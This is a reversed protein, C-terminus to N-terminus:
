GPYPLGSPWWSPVGSAVNDHNLPCTNIMAFKVHHEGTPWSDYWMVDLYAPTTYLTYVYHWGKIQHTTVHHQKYVANAITRAKTSTMASGNMTLCIGPGDAAKAYGAWIALATTSLLCAVVFLVVTKM